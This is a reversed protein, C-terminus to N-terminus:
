KVNSRINKVSSCGITTQTNRTCHLRTNLIKVFPFKRCVDTCPTMGITYVTCVSVYARYSCLDCVAHEIVFIRGYASYEFLVTAYNRNEINNETANNTRIGAFVASCELVIFRHSGSTIPRSQYSAASNM